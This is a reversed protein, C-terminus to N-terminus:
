VYLIVLINKIGKLKHYMDGLNDESNKAEKNEDTVHDDNDDLGM